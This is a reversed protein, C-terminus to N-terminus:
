QGESTERGLLARCFFSLSAILRSRYSKLFCFSKATDTIGGDLRENWSNGIIILM